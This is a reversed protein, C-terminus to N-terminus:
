KVGVPLAATKEEEKNQLYYQQAIMFLTSVLWYLTLGAPFKIGIVLTMLPGLYLMQKTLIESFDPEKSNNDKKEKEDPKKIQKKAMLIKTQVYQAVATVLVLFIQVVSSFDIKGFDITRSLDILNLFLHNIQGPNEVFFYLGSGDVMLGSNSINFLVRYIAILFVLQFILPLCGSFPNAKNERYFDMLARSQKEKDNKYKVQIEKIKPQLEQMKRQSEIQKRSLPVLLLKIIITVIIIAIGFDQVPILNYVFILLNYIPNYVFQTFLAAM